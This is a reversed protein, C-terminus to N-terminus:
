ISNHLMFIVQMFQKHVFEASIKEQVFFEEWVIINSYPVVSCWMTSRAVTVWVVGCWVVGCWVVGCWVMSCWVM